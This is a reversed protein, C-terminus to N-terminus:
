APEERITKVRRRSTVYALGGAASHAWTIVRLLLAVAAAKGADGGLAALCWTLAGERVGLAGVTIPVMEPLTRFPLVGLAHPLGLPLGVGAAMVVMNLAVVLYFIASIGLAAALVAPRDRFVYFSSIVKYLRGFLPREARAKLYQKLHARWLVYAGAIGAFAGGGVAAMPWRAQPVGLRDFIGPWALGVVVALGMVLLVGTGREVVVSAAAHGTPAGHRHLEAIKVVDGGVGTPLFNNFFGGVYYAHLVSLFPVHPAATRVLICVKWASVVMSALGLVLALVFMDARVSKARALVQGIPVLRFLVALLAVGVLPRVLSLWLRRRGLSSM